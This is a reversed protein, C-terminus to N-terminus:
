KKFKYIPRFFESTMPLDAVLEKGCANCNKTVTTIVGPTNEDIVQRFYAIDKVPLREILQIATMIDITQNNVMVIPLALSYTYAPDGMAVFGKKNEKDKHKRIIKEDRGRLLRFSLNIKSEPLLVEFPEKANEPPNKITFDGPINVSYKSAVNCSGCTLTFNYEQGYSNARLMLLMYYRDSLLLDNIDITTILCRSLITDIVDDVNAQNMGAILKEEQVSLPRVELGGNLIISPDYFIGLSPLEIIGTTPKPILKVIDDLTIQSM